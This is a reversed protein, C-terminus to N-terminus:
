QNKPEWVVAAVSVPGLIDEKENYKVQLTKDTEAWSNKKSATFVLPAMKITSRHNPLMSISRPRIYFTYDLGNVIEKHHPYNRTVPCGVDAGVYNEMDVVVDDGITLGWPNLIGNLSPNKLKDKETLPNEKTGLPTSEILFM